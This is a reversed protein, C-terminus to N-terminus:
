PASSADFVVAGAERAQAETCAEGSPSSALRPCRQLIERLLQVDPVRAHHVCVAGQPSWGAEFSLKSAPDAERVGHDDWIHILQGARTAPQGDGCYDARTMRVCAQYMALRQAEDAAGYHGAMGYGFRVCKGLAGSLCTLRVQTRDDVFGGTDDTRGQLAFGLREGEHNPECAPVWQGSAGDQRELGYLFLGPVSADRRVSALRVTPGGPVAVVLGAVQEGRRVEGDKMRLVFEYGDVQVQAVDSASATQARAPPLVAALTAFAIVLLSRCEPM